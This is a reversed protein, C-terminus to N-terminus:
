VRKIFNEAYAKPRVIRENPEFVQYKLGERECYAIAAEKTPFRLTIQRDTSGGGIWGMLRDPRQATQPEAEVVWYHTKRRGSQTAPKAHKFIRVQHVHM